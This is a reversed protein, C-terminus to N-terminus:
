AMSRVFSEPELSVTSKVTDLLPCVSILSGIFGARGTIIVHRLLKRSLEGM